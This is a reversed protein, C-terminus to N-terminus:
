FNDNTTTASFSSSSAQDVYGSYGGGWEGGLDCTLLASGTAGSEILYNYTGTKYVENGDCVLSSGSQIDFGQFMPDIMMNGDAIDGTITSSSGYQGICIAPDQDGYGFSGGRIIVNGSVTANQQSYAHFIGVMMGELKVSDMALNNNVFANVGGYIGFENAWWQAISTNDVYTCNTMNPASTDSSNLTIGDDGNGRSFNNMVLLNNCPTGNVNNFNMGDGWSNNVRCNEVTINNGDAWTLMLHRAWVNNLTWGDGNSDAYALDAFQGPTANPGSADISLNSFSASHTLFLFGNSWNSATNFVTSYWPGAGEITVHTANIASGSSVYYTGQPIWVSEGASQAANICNQIASTNDFGSNNAQAGYSAISLSNAPQSLAAPPAELDIVDINYYNASNAGDKSLSITGGPAVGSGNLLVHVEDWFVHPNGASPSQNMGNYSSSTEYVWTQTSTVPLAQNLQGNVYLDLTSNMGGGSSSDPISYRVNVATITRGTNNTWTVSDGTHGLNVYAHGSAELQPSSFETTPASTLAVVSAQGGLAGSEAEYSIFPTNAGIQVPSISWEQNTNGSQPTWQWVAGGNGTAGSNDLALGSTKCVLTYYGGGASTITWQQNTNSSASPYYQTAYAGNSSSGGNDLNMGSTLCTLSYRGSPLVNVQWEQNTSALGAGWQWVDNGVSSAGENDLNLGSTKCNLTYIGGSAIPLQEVESLQWEQNTNGSQPTWQWTVNGNGTGGDNDIALGNAASVFTYDGNSLQTITWEQDVSHPIVPNQVIDTGNSFGNASDLAMGSTLNVIYYYGNPLQNIQWEQNTNGSQPTWQWFGNGPSTSGENDLALGSTKCVLTYVGGSVPQAHARGVLFATALICVTFRIAIAAKLIPDEKSESLDVDDLHLNYQM